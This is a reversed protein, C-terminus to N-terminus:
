RGGSPPSGVPVPAPLGLGAGTYSAGYGRPAGATGAGDYRAPSAPLYASETLGGATPEADPFRMAGTVGAPAGGSGAGFLGTPAEATVLGGGEFARDSPDAGSVMGGGAYAADASGSRPAPRPAYTGAGALVTGGVGPAEDGLSPSISAVYNETEDPLITSGALFLAVRDPGANYAALFYPSGFRDYMERLYATGALINDRPEFPDAGLGYRRSVLDYTTPMVQMLGMAGVPSTILSGDGNYLRGGSEQRMVARIWRAPFRFRSAAEEIYPGWPDDAPGPAPYNGSAQARYSGAEARTYASAATNYGYDGNGDYGRRGDWHVMGPYYAGPGGCGALILLLAGASWRTRM